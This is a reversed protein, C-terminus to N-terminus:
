LQHLQILTIRFKKKTQETACKLFFYLLAHQPSLATFTPPFYFVQGSTAEAEGVVLIYNYQAVQAERVQMYMLLWLCNNLLGVFPKLKLNFKYQKLSFNILDDLTYSWISFANCLVMKLWTSKLTCSCIYSLNWTKGIIKHVSTVDEKGIKWDM